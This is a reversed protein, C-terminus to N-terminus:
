CLDASRSYSCRSRMEYRASIVAAASVTRYYWVVVSTKRFTLTILLDLVKKSGRCRHIHFYCFFFFFEDSQLM